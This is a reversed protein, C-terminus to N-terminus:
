EWSSFFNVQGKDYNVIVEASAADEGPSIIYKITNDTLSIKKADQLGPSSDIWSEIAEKSAYFRGRVTRNILLRGETSISFETVNNPFPSLRGWSLAMDILVARQRPGPERQSSTLIGITFLVVFCIAIGGIVWLIRRKWKNM